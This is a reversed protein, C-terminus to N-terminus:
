GFNSGCPTVEKNEGRELMLNEAQLLSVGVRLTSTSSVVGVLIGILNM